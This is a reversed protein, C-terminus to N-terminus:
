VIIIYEGKINKKRELNKIAESVKGYFNEEYFKTLEKGIYCQIDGFISLIDKLHFIIKHPSSFIIKTVKLGKYSNLFEKRKKEKDPLYGLFLFPYPPFTSQLLAVLISSAGPLAQVKINNKIAERVLKYGPDCILPTGADSILAINKGEKLKELIKQIKERENHEFYSELRKKIKLHNLLKKTRRTDECIIEDLSSIIEKARETIDKLNGIPTPILYLTM